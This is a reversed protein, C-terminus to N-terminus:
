VMTLLVYNQKTNVAEIQAKLSDITRRLEAMKANDESSSGSGGIISIENRKEGSSTMGGTTNLDVQGSPNTSLEIM